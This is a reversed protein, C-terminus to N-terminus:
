FFCIGQKNLTILDQVFDSQHIPTFDEFGPPIEGPPTGYAMAANPMAFLPLFVLPVKRMWDFIKEFGKLPNLSESLNFRGIYPKIM